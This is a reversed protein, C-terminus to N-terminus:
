GIITDFIIQKMIDNWESEEEVELVPNVVEKGRLFCRLLILKWSQKVKIERIIMVLPCM